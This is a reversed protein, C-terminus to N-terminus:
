KGTTDPRCNFLRAPRRIFAKARAWPDVLGDAGKLATRRHHRRSTPMAFCPKPPNTGPPPEPAMFVTGPLLPPSRRWDANMTSPNAPAAAASSSRMPALALPSHRSGTACSDPVGGLPLAHKVLIDAFVAVSPAAVARLRAIHHARTEIVGQDTLRAGTLVNIRRIHLRRASRRRSAIAVRRRQATVNIGIPLSVRARVAAIVATMAAVTLRPVRRPYFPADGFNEICVADFGAAV